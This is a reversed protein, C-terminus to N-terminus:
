VKSLCGILFNEIVTQALKCNNTTTLTYADQDYDNTLTLDAGHILLENCTYPFDAAAAYMLATSGSDDQIDADAGESLLFKVVEHHGGAAALHLATEGEPGRMNVNAGCWVLDQCSNLQGYSAAWHLATLGHEDTTDVYQELKVDERSIEGRGAKAHFSCDPQPLEPVRAQTNGVIVVKFVRQLNTLATCQVSKYPTFASKRVGNLNPAWRQYGGSGGKSSDESGSDFEFKITEMSEQKIDINKEENKVCVGEEM